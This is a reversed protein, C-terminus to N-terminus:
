APTPCNDSASTRIVTIHCEGRLGGAVELDSETLEDEIEPTGPKTEEGKEISKEKEEAM